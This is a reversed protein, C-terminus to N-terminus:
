RLNQSATAKYQTPDGEKEFNWAISKKKCQICFDPLNQLYKVEAVGKNLLKSIHHHNYAGEQIEFIRSNLSSRKNKNRFM